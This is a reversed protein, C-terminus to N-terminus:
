AELANIVRLTRRVYGKLETDDIQDPTTDNNDEGHHYEASYGNIQDLEDYLAAAPHTAGGERIKRVMDGLWDNDQFSSPFTTRCYAELVVRMKRVIDLLNGSGNSVFSRLDDTDTLTRGQCAREIDVEALKTGLARHDSLM